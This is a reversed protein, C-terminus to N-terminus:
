SQLERILSRLEMRVKKRQIGDYGTREAIRFLHERFAMTIEPRRIELTVFPDKTHVLIAMGNECAILNYKQRSDRCPLFYYNDYRDMLQLINKLHLVYTEPTYYLNGHIATGSASAVPVSGSRVEAATALFSMDIFPGLTLTREFHPIEELYMQLTKKWAPDDTERIFCELLEAPATNISLANIQQITNGGYQSFLTRFLSIADEPTNYVHLAPRCLALHQQYQRSFASTLTLDTTFLTVDTTSGPQIAASYQACRGPVIVISHRYLNDRLRPYYFVKMQGTAYMPLWFQLSETYRNIYNMPPLIQYFTFGREITELMWSQVQKSLLYDSLLYELNDDTVIQISDPHETERIMQMMRCMVERRGEEGYFFETNGASQAFPSKFPETQLTPLPVTSEEEYEDIIGTDGALWQELRGALVTIPMDSRLAAQGLMESLAYHQFETTCHRAFFFAMKKITQRNRLNRKGNRLLSIFSRDVSLEMALEKNSTQSVNILFNLKDSFEM